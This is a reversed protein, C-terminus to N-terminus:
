GALIGEAMGALAETETPYYTLGGRLILGAVTLMTQLRRNMECLVVRGQRADYDRKAMALKGIATSVMYTCHSLNIVLKLNGAKSEELILKELEDTEDGGWFEGKPYLITITRITKRDVHM